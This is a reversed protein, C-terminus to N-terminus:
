SRHGSVNRVDSPFVTLVIAVRAAATACGKIMRLDYRSSDCIMVAATSLSRIETEGHRRCLSGRRLRRGSLPAISRCVETDVVQAPEQLLARDVGAWWRQGAGLGALRDLDVPDDRAGVGDGQGVADDQGRLDEGPPLDPDADLRRQV